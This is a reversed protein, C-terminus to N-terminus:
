RLLVALQQASPPAAIPGPFMASDPEWVVIIALAMQKSIPYRAIAISSKSLDM